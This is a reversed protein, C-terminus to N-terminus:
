SNRLRELISVSDKLRHLSEDAHTWSSVLCREITEIDPIMDNHGTKKAWDRLNKVCSKGHSLYAREPAEISLYQETAEQKPMLEGSLPKVGLMKCADAYQSQKLEAYTSVKFRTKLMHYTTAYHIGKAAYIHNVAEQIHRKQETTLAPDPLAKIETQAPHLIKEIQMDCWIEFDVDIWRAFKISLKPHLWSGGGTSPAGGKVKLLQNKKIVMNEPLQIGQFM